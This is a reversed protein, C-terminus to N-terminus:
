DKGCATEADGGRWDCPRRHTREEDVRASQDAGCITRFGEVSKRGCRGSVQRFYRRSNEDFTGFFGPGFPDVWSTMAATTSM